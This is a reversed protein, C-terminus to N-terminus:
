FKFIKNQAYQKAMGPLTQQYAAQQNPYNSLAFNSAAQSGQFAPNMVTQLQQQGGSMMGSALNYADMFPQLRLSPIQYEMLKGNAAIDALGQAKNREIEKAFFKSFGASNSMGSGAAANNAAGVASNYSDTLAREQPQTYADRYQGIEEPTMNFAGAMQGSINSGFKTANNYIAQEEPTQYANNVYGGQGEDYVRQSRLMGNEYYYENQPKPASPASSSNSGGGKSGKSMDSGKM